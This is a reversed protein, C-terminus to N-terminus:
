EPQEKKDCWENWRVRLEARTSSFTQWVGEICGHSGRYLGPPEQSPKIYAKGGCLPCLRLRRTKQTM